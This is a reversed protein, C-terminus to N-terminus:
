GGTKTMGVSHTVPPTPEGKASEVMRQPTESCRGPDAEKGSVLPLLAPRLEKLIQVPLASTFDYGAAKAGPVFATVVGYFREGIYFAFTAARNMVRSSKVTGDAGIVQFRHDGTGTKGGIPIPKDEADRYAGKVRRATGSDVVRLLARRAVQTIEAPLVREGPEFRRELVTEYPTAAAFHLQDIRVTPRRIGDNVVIGMLEALAAPRDASSGISTALSPVLHEFPYGLRRWEAAIREFATVEVIIDIRVQQAHKFRSAFLWRSAERREAVSAAVVAHLGADPHTHLHRVLWLELPHIHALYGQDSLNYNRVAHNNFLRRLGADTGARDGLRQRMFAQFADFDSEPQVGLFVAALPSPRAPVSDALVDLREAPAVDRYKHWFTRLYGIGEREAFRNLFAERAEKGGKDDSERLARAPADEAEYAYYHVVDHMIRVFVLNVSQELAEAVSPNKGDDEHKFNSFRHVGGGTFFTEQPSASYHREMAAELMATLSRDESSRLYSLAWISLRDSPKTAIGALAKADLDVYRRHLDAIINLYSILTRFKASSGLDLKTGANIDLPQNLNDAQVRLVNGLPAKEYLTFSYNVGAPDGRDLMRHEKFGACRLYDAKALRGLYATVKSQAAADLTTRAKLDFRDLAYLDEFGLLDGLTGRVDNVAKREVFSVAEGARVRRAPVLRTHLAADRLDEPIGRDSSLLRLYSDTLSDLRETSELLLGSPRRQAVILSLVERFVQARAALDAHPDSLLRNATDFDRGYWAWLGDGLGNVEGYGALGALPVSNLYDLVIRQRAPLTDEGQQYARLLGFADTAVQRRCRAHSRRSFSPIKRDPYGAYQRGGARRRPRPRAVDPGGGRPEIAGWDVAPNRSPHDTDLLDRNEIYLLADVLVPPIAEFSAYQREPYRSDYIPTGNRDLLTLGAQSKERYIPYYGRRTINRFGDSQRAQATIEFGAAVLRPLMDKMQTYGLRTSYPGFQPLWLDASPGDQTEWSIGRAYGSFFHAQLSSDRAELWVVTATVAVVVLAATRWFIIRRKRKRRIKTSTLFSEGEM